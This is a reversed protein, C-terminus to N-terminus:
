EDYDKLNKLAKSLLEFDKHDYKKVYWKHDLGYLYLYEICMGYHDRYDNKNKFCTIQPKTPVSDEDEEGNEYMGVVMKKAQIDWTNLRDRFYANCYDYEKQRMSEAKKEGYKKVAKKYAGYHDEGASFGWIPYYPSQNLYKGLNSLNGLSILTKVNWPTQYYKQLIEGNHKLYGDWHCYIASITKDPNEMAINSRTSM